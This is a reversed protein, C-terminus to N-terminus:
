VWRGVQARYADYATGFKALLAREEPAIQFRSIYLVFVVPGALALASCLFTAWGVIVLTVGVYMPNRTRRFIGSTVLATTSEPKFPNATTKARRFERNGSIAVGAGILAIGVFVAVRVSFPLELVPGFRAVFWMAAGVLVAVAPPPIKLELGSM